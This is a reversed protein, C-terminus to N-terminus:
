KRPSSSILAPTTDQLSMRVPSCTFSGRASATSFALAKTSDSRWFGTMQSFYFLPLGFPSSRKQAGEPSRNSEACLASPFPLATPAARTLPAMRERSLIVGKFGWSFALPSGRAGWCQRDPAQLAVRAACHLHPTCPKAMFRRRTTVHQLRAKSRSARTVNTQRCVAQSIRCQQARRMTSHEPLRFNPQVEVLHASRCGCPTHRMRLAASGGVAACCRIIPASAFRRAVGLAAVGRAPLRM